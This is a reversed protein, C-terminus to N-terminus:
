HSKNKKLFDVFVSKVTRNVNRGSKPHPLQPKWQHQALADREAKVIFHPCHVPHLRLNVAARVNESGM